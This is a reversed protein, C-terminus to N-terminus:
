ASRAELDNRNHNANIMPMNKNDITQLEKRSIEDNYGKLLSINLFFQICRCCQSTSEIAEIHTFKRRSM